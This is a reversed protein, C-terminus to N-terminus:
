ILAIFLLLLYFYFSQFSGNCDLTMGGYKIKGMYRKSLKTCYTYSSYIYLCCSGEDDNYSLCDTNVVPKDVGCKRIQSKDVFISFNELMNNKEYDEECFVKYNYGNHYYIDQLSNSKFSMCINTRVDTLDPLLKRLICCKFKSNSYSFCGNENGKQVEKDIPCNNNIVTTSELSSPTETSILNTNIFIIIFFFAKFISNNNQFFKPIKM